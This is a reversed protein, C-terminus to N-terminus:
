DRTYGFESSYNLFEDWPPVVQLGLLHLGDFFQKTPDTPNSRRGRAGLCSPVSRCFVFPM